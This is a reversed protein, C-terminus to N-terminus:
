IANEGIETLQEGVTWLRRAITKDYSQRSSRAKKCNMFYCGTVGEMLPSAAAYVPTRAGADPSRLLMQGVLSAVPPWRFDRMIGTWLVGPHVCNVTVGTGSIRRALEYTFLVMALKTQRYRTFPRYSSEGQLDAFPIDVGRHLRATLNVVRSPASSKLLDLLLNTLLFPALFNTALMAEMGDVTLRRTSYVAAANNILVHLESCRTSVKCALGRVAQQSSLDALLFEPTENGTARRIDDLAAEGKAADRGVLLVRAGLQALKMATAKGIGSTAGTVVCTKGILSGAPVNDRATM